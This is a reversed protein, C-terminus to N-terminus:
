GLPERIPPSLSLLAATVALVLVVLAVELTVSRRLLALVEPAPRDERAAQLLRPRTWRNNVAGLALAPVFAALKALLVLGYTSGTLAGLTRIEVWSSYVGSAIISFVAVVAIDSFRAVVPALVRVREGDDVVQAAPFAVAVLVVLGGAWAAIGAVHVLAVAMNPILPSSGRAHGALAAAMLLALICAADLARSPRAESRGDHRSASREANQSAPHSSGAARAPIPQMVRSLLRRRVLWTVGPLVVLGLRLGEVMRDESLVLSSVAGAAAMVWAAAVLRDWRHAFVQEVDPSRPREQRAGNWMTQRFLGAGSAVLIGTLGVWTAAAHLVDQVHDSM